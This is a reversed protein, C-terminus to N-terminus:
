AERYRTDVSPLSWLSQGNTTEKRIVRLRHAAEYLSTLKGNFHAIIEQRTKPTKLFAQLQAQIIGIRTVKAKPLIIELPNDFREPDILMNLLKVVTIRHRRLIKPERDRRPVQRYFETLTNEILQVLRRHTEPSATAGTQLRQLTNPALRTRRAIENRTFGMLSMLGWLLPHQRGPALTHLKM